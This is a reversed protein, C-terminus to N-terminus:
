SCFIGPFLCIDGIRQEHLKDFPLFAFCGSCRSPKTIKSWSNQSHKSSQHFHFWRFSMWHSFHSLIKFVAPNHVFAVSRRTNKYTSLLVRVLELLGIKRVLWTPILCSVHLRQEYDNKCDSSADFWDYGCHDSADHLSNPLLVHVNSNVGRWCLSLSRKVMSEREREREREREWVKNIESQM